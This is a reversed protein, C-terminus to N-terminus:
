LKARSSAAQLVLGAVDDAARPRGLRRSAEAMARRRSPDRLEQLAEFLRRGSLEQHVIVVAAGAAELVRANAEQEGAVAFPYPVTIAPLGHATVEALTGAGARCIAVDACAYADGIDEIYPMTVYTRVQIAGIRGTVRADHEKGVQHLIQVGTDAPLLGAMDIVADNLTAAGLSGGLVLVTLTGDALGFHKLGRARDGALARARVPVGTVVANGPFYREVSTHPVSVARAWRALLRNTAGPIANQEQVILPIRLLGAAVGAPVSAYGGTAVVTSPGFRMMRVAAQLTGAGLLSMAWFWRVSPRRPWPHSLVPSFQLGEQPVIRRELGSGGIFLVDLDSVQRRLAEAIAVGPYVHGGTGGGTIVIRM